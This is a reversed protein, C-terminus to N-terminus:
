VNSYKAFWGDKDGFRTTGLTATTWGTLYLNGNSGLHINEAVTVGDTAGLLQEWLLTGTSNVKLIFGELGAAQSAKLGSIYANGEADVALDKYGYAVQNSSTQNISWLTNGYTDLKFLWSDTEPQNGTLNSYGSIYVNGQGDVAIGTGEDSLSTTVV